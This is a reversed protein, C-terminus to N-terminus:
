AVGTWERPDDTDDDGTATFCLADLANSEDPANWEVQNPLAYFPNTRGSYVFMWVEVTGTRYFVPYSWTNYNDGDHEMRTIGVPMSRWGIFMAKFPQLGNHGQWGTTLPYDKRMDKSGYRPQSGDKTTRYQHAMGSVTCWEGLKPRENM